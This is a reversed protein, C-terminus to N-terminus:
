HRFKNRLPININYLIQLQNREYFNKYNVKISVISGYINGVYFVTSICGFLLTRWNTLGKRYWNEATVVMLSGCILFSSIGEGTNGAYVKGLGPIIASLGGALLKSKSKYTDIDNKISKLNKMEESFLFDTSDVQNSYFDFSENDRRLLSIASLSFNKLNIIKQDKTLIKNLDIQSQEFNNLIANSYSSLFLSETYLNSNLTLLSFNEIAKNFDKSSYYTYGRLFNISDNNTGLNDLLTIAENTMNNGILYFVFDWNDRVSSNTQSFSVLNTLTIILFLYKKM